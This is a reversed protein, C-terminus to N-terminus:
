FAFPSLPTAGTVEEAEEGGGGVQVSLKSGKGIKVVVTGSTPERRSRGSTGPGKSELEQISPCTYHSLLHPMLSLLWAVLSLCLV